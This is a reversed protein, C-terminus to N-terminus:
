RYPAKILPIKQTEKTDQKNDQTIHGYTIGNRNHAVLGNVWCTLLLMIIIIAGILYIYIYVYM